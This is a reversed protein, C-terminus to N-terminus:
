KQPLLLLTIFNWHECMHEQQGSTREKQNKKEYSKTLTSKKFIYKMVFAGRTLQVNGTM